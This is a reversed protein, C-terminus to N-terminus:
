GAFRSRDADLKQLQYCRECYANLGYRHAVLDGLADINIAQQKM